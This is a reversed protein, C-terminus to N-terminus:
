YRETYLLRTTAFPTSGQICVFKNNSLFLQLTNVYAHHDCVVHMGAFYLRHPEDKPKLADNIVAEGPSKSNAPSVPAALLDYDNGSAGVAM